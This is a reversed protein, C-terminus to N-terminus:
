ILRRFKFTMRRGNTNNLAATYTMSHKVQLMLHVGASVSHRQTRLQIDGINPAHGARHLPIEDVMTSNTTSNGIWSMMGSYYEDYHNGNVNHDDVYVQVAYTGTSLDTYNIGTDTWTNATLQFTMNVTKLQDVDTGSSMTLGSHEINGAVKLSTTTNGPDLYYDTSDKDVLKNVYLADTYYMISTSGKYWYFNSTSGSKMTLHGSSQMGSQYENTLSSITISPPTTGSIEPPQVKLFGNNVHLKQDPDPTGIGVLGATTITLYDNTGPGFNKSIKLKDSSSNDIGMSWDTGPNSNVKWHVFPDGADDGGTYISVVGHSNATNSTNNVEARVQGGDTEKKLHLDREPNNTGIGVYGYNSNGSFGAIIMQLDTDRYFRYDNNSPGFFYGRHSIGLKFTSDYAIKLQSSGEATGALSKTIHLPNAPTPELIGVNGDHNIRVVEDLTENNQSVSFALGTSSDTDTTVERVAAIGAGVFTNGPDTDNNGAIKFKIGVGEGGLQDISNNDDKVSLTLPYEVTSVASLDDVIELKSSPSSTGIGVSGGSTVRVREAGSTTIAFNDNAVFGFKTNDDGLHYIYQNIGVDQTSPDIELANLNNLKIHFNGNNTAVPLYIEATTYPSSLSFAQLYLGQNNSSSPGRWQIQGKPPSTGGGGATALITTLSQTTTNTNILEIKPSSSKLSLATSSGSDVFLRSSTSQTSGIVVNQNTGIMMAYGTASNTNLDSNTYFHMPGTTLFDASSSGSVLGFAHENSGDDYVVKIGGTGPTQNPAITSRSVLTYKTQAAADTGSRTESVVLKENPSPESIGVRQNTNDIYLPLPVDNSRGAGFIKILGNSAHSKIVVAIKQILQGATAPKTNTLTGLNGVYLEDGISFSSTDIGSVAGMMVAAGEAGDAITENLVGIAPMKTADDYDAAIVEIVNGSPPTASPSTHVVTGKSLSGGSVNKVTIVVNQDVFSLEGSGDTAIVQNASGDADPFTYEDNITINNLFRNPM